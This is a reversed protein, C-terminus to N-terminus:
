LAYTMCIHNQSDQTPSLKVIGEILFNLCNKRVCKIYSAQNELLRNHPFDSALYALQKAVLNEKEEV